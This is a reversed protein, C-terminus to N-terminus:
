SPSTRPMGNARGSTRSRPASQDEFVSMSIMVGGGADAFHYAVFLVDKMRPVWGRRAVGAEAPDTVGEYRRVLAYM